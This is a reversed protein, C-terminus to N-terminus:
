CIVPIDRKNHSLITFDNSWTLSHVLHKCDETITNFSKVMEDMMWGDGDDYGNNDGGDEDYDSGM